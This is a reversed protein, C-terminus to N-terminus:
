FFFYSLFILFFLAAWCSVVWVGRHGEGGVDALREAGQAWREEEELLAAWPSGRPEEWGAQECVGPPWGAQEGAVPAPLSLVALTPAPSLLLAAAPRFCGFPGPTLHKLREASGIWLAPQAKPLNGLSPVALLPGPTHPEGM